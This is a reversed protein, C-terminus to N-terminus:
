SAVREISVVCAAQNVYPSTVAMGRWPWPHACRRPPTGDACGHFRPLPTLSTVGPLHPCRRARRLQYHCPLCRPPMRGRPSWRRSGGESTAAAALTNIHHSADDLPAGVPLPASPAILVARSGTAASPPVLDKESGFPSSLSILIPRITKHWTLPDMEISGSILRHGDHTGSSLICVRTYTPTVVRLFYYFNVRYIYIYIYSLWFNSRLIFVHM